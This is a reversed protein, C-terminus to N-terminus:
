EKWKYASYRWRTTVRPYLITPRYYPDIEM